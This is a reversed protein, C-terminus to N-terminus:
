DKISSGRCQSAGTPLLKPAIQAGPFCLTGPNGKWMPCVGARLHSPSVRPNTYTAWALACGQRGTREAAHMHGTLVLCLQEPILMPMAVSPSSEGRMRQIIKTNELCQCRQLSSRGQPFFYLLLLNMGHRPIPVILAFNVSLFSSFCKGPACQGGCAQQKEIKKKKKRKLEQSWNVWFSSPFFVFSFCPSCRARCRQGARAPQRRPAALALRQERGREKWSLCLHKTCIFQFGEARSYQRM